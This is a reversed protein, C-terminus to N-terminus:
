KQNEKSPTSRHEAEISVCVCYAAFVAVALLGVVVYIAATM